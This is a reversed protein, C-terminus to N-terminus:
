SQKEEEDVVITWGAPNNMVVIAQAAEEASGFCRGENKRPSTKNVMRCEPKNPWPEGFSVFWFKEGYNNTFLLKACIM